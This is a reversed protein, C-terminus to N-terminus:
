ELRTDQVNECSNPDEGVMHLMEESNKTGASWAVKINNNLLIPTSPYGM